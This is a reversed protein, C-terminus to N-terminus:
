ERRGLQDQDHGCSLGGCAASSTALSSCKYVSSVRRLNPSIGLNNELDRVYKGLKLVRGLKVLKFLQLVPWTEPQQWFCALLIDDLTVNLHLGGLLM